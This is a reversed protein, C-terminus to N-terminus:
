DAGPSRLVGAKELADIEESSLGVEGLVERNHQGPLPAPRRKASAPTRSFRAPPPISKYPGAVPHDADPLADVLDDLDAVEAAPIGVRRCLELWEATTKTAVISRLRGYLLEPNAARGRPTSLREDDLDDRGTAEALTAFHANTYPFVSIWGDATPQPQRHSTLVREYGAQSQPPQAIAGSGHEVLLFSSIADIMPVEVHQGQGSREREFLAAVLATVMTLGSVKDAIISPFLARDYGARHLVDPVGGAAQMVDDYAPDDERGSGIPFGQAQCYVIDPRVAAVDDYALSLRALPAPRLNTVFVDCTAVIRLLAARGEPAKLDISVNRKNRLLNLAIGSLHRHPGPGMGRNTEGKAPEVTIVEAGLDGLTQTAFPGMVVSTLDLVRVGHLPGDPPADM